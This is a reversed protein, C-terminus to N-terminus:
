RTPKVGRAATVQGSAEANDRGEDGQQHSDAEPHAEIWSNQVATRRAGRRSELSPTWYKTPTSPRPKHHHQEGRKDNGESEEGGIAVEGVRASENGQHEQKLGPENPVNVASLKKWQNM